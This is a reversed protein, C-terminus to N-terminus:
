RRRRCALEHYIRAYARVMAELSFRSEVRQRGARGWERAEERRVLIRGLAAALPGPQGPPVLLGTQGEAVVEPCGGVRTAVAPLGCAMAELLAMPVGESLSSLAFVDGANLLGAVENAEGLFRVRDGLGLETTRAELEPRSPGEGVLLLSAGPEPLRAVAELLL